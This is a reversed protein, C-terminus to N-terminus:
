STFAANHAITFAQNQVDASAVPMAQWLRHPEEGVALLVGFREILFIPAPSIPTDGSGPAPRPTGVALCGWARNTGSIFQWNIHQHTRTILQYGSYFAIKSMTSICNPDDFSSEGQPHFAVNWQHNARTIHFTVFQPLGEPTSGTAHSQNSTTYQWHARFIAAVDWGDKSVGQINKDPWALTCFLHCNQTGIFCSNDFRLGECGEMLSGDTDLIFRLSAQLPQTAAPPTSENRAYSYLEGREVQTTGRLTDLQRQAAQILAQRQAPPLANLSLTGPFAIQSAGRTQVNPSVLPHIVCSQAGAPAAQPVTLICQQTTFSEAQWELRHVGRSLRMPLEDYTTPAHALPHGDLKFHGWPPLLPFYFLDPGSLPTPSPTPRTSFINQMVPSRVAPISSLLLLVVIFIISATITAQIRRQRRSFRPRLSTYHVAPTTAKDDPPRDGAEKLGTFQIDDDTLDTIHVDDSFDDQRQNRNSTDM